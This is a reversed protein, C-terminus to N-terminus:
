IFIIWFLIFIPILPLFLLIPKKTRIKVTAKRRNIAGVSIKLGAPDM